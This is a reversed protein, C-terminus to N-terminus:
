LKNVYRVNDHITEVELIFAFNNDNLDILLGTKTILSFKMKYIDIPSLYQRTKYIFNAMTDWTISFPPTTVPIVALINEDVLSNPLIGYTTTFVSDANFEDM